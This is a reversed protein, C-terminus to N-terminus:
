ELGEMLALLRNFAREVNDGLRASTRLWEGGGAVLQEIRSDRIEQRERLDSKNVLGVFPLAALNSEVAQRLELAHDLTGSRTGDVVLLCGSAGRLYRLFIGTPAGIGGLDWIAIKVASGDPRRMTKVDVRVGITTRYQKSYQDHVFREVLSTKGVAFDGLLCIKRTDM